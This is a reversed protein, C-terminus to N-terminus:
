QFAAITKQKLQLLQVVQERMAPWNGYTNAPAEIKDLEAIIGPPFLHIYEKYFGRHYTYVDAATHTFIKLALGLHLEGCNGAFLLRILEDNERRNNGWLKEVYLRNEQPSLLDFAGPYLEGTQAIILRMWGADKFRAAANGLAALLHVGHKNKKIHEIIGAAPEHLHQEWFAPPVAAVLQFIVLENDAIGKITSVSREIGTQFLAEPFSAPADIHLVTKSVMGLLSKEKKLIVSSALINHYQQVIASAPLLKLLRLAVEKVKASKEKLATELWPIDADNLGTELVALLDAKTSANEQLWATQLLQLAANADANRLNRLAAKREAPAGTHFITEDDQVEAFHWADNFRALWEGRKGGCAKIQERLTKYNVGANFLAPLVEPLVVQGRQICLQLWLQLLAESELELIDKLAHLAGPATYPLEEAPAPQLAIGAQTQPLWGSRRYNGAVAAMQLFQEERDATSAQVQQLVEVLAGDLDAPELMKKETGLLATNLINNWFEM